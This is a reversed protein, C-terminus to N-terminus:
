LCHVHLKMLPFPNTDINKWEFSTSQTYNILFRWQNLYHRPVSCALLWLALWHHHLGAVSIEPVLPSLTLLFYLPKYCGPWVFVCAYIPDDNIWFDARRKNPSVMVWALSPKNDFPGRAIYELWIQRLKEKSFMCKFMGGAFYQGFQGVVWPQNCAYPMIGYMVTLLCHRSLPVSIAASGYTISKIRLVSNTHNTM